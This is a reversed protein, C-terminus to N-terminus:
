SINCSFAFKKWRCIRYLMNMFTYSHVVVTRILGTLVHWMNQYNSVM